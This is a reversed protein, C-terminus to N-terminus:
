WALMVCCGLDPGLKTLDCPHHVAIGRLPRHHHVRNRLRELRDLGVPQAHPWRGLRGLRVHQPQPRRRQQDLIRVIRQQLDIWRVRAHRGSHQQCQHILSQPRWGFSGSLSHGHSGASDSSGSLTHNHSPMNGTALTVSGTGTSARTYTGGAGMPLRNSMNPINFTTTGNGVGYATGCVVFLDAYITRSVASGDCLLWNMPASSGAYPLVSGVPTFADNGELRGIILMVPGQQLISVRDGLQIQTDQLRNLWTDSAIDVQLRRSGGVEVATVVGVRMSMAPPADDPSIEAALEPVSDTM